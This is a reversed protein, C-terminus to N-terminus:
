VNVEKYKWIYGRYTKLVGRCCESVHSQSINLQRHVECASPYTKILEMDKTYQEVIKSCGDNKMNRLGTRLAHLNNEQITCWELNSYHNNKKNGDKHNVQPLDNPNSLFTQAVLRHVYFYKTKSKIALGVRLYGDKDERPKMYKNYFLSYINGYEDIIYNNYIIEKRM